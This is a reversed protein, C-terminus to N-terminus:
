QEKLFDIAMRNLIFSSMPSSVSKIVRSVHRRLSEPPDADVCLLHHAFALVGPPLEEDYYGPVTRPFSTLNGVSCLSWMGMEVNLFFLGGGFCDGLRLAFCFLTRNVPMLSSQTGYEFAPFYGNLAMTSHKRTEPNYIVLEDFWEKERSHLVFLNGTPTKAQPLKHPMWEHEQMALQELQVTGDGRVHLESVLVRSLFSFGFRTGDQREHVHWPAMGVQPVRQSVVHSTVPFVLLESEMPAVLVSNLDMWPRCLTEKVPVSTKKGEKPEFVFGARTFHAIYRERKVVQAWEVVTPLVQPVANLFCLHVSPARTRKLIENGAVFFKRCVRSCAYIGLVSLRLFIMILVDRPAAALTGPQLCALPDFQLPIRKVAWAKQWEQRSVEVGHRSEIIKRDAAKSSVDTADDSYGYVHSAASASLDWELLAATKSLLEAFPVSPQDAFVRLEELLAADAPIPFVRSAVEEVDAVFGKAERRTLVDNHNAYKLELRAVDKGSVSDFRGKLGSSGHGM